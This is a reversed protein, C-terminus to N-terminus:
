AEEHEQEKRGTPLCTGKYPAHRVHAPPDVILPGDFLTGAPLHVGRKGDIVDVVWRDDRLRRRLTVLVERGDPTRVLFDDGPGGDPNSRWGAAQRAQAM